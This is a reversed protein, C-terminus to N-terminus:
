SPHMKTLDLGDIRGGQSGSLEDIFLQTLMRSTPREKRMSSDIHLVSM